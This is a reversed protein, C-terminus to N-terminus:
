GVREWAGGEAKGEWNSGMYLAVKRNWEVALGGM